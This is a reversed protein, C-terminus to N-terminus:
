RRPQARSGATARWSARLLGSRRQMPTGSPRQPSRRRKQPLTVPWPFTTLSRGGSLSGGTWGWARSQKAAAQVIPAGSRLDSSLLYCHGRPNPEMRPGHELPVTGDPPLVYFRYREGHHGFKATRHRDAIYARLRPGLRCAVFNPSHRPPNPTDRLLATRVARLRRRWPGQPRASMGCIHPQRLLIRICGLHVFARYNELKQEHRVLIRRFNQCWAILRESTETSPRTSSRHTDGSSAHRGAQCGVRSCTRRARRVARRVPGGNRRAGAAGGRSVEWSTRRRGSWPGDRGCGSLSVGM